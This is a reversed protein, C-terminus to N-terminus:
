IKLRDPPKVLRGSRTTVLEPVLPPVNEATLPLEPYETLSLPTSLEASKASVQGEKEPLIPDVVAKLRDISVSWRKGSKLFTFVKEGRELVPFPGM